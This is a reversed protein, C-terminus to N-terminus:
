AMDALVDFVEPFAALVRHHDIFRPFRVVMGVATRIVVLRDGRGRDAIIHAVDLHKEVIQVLHFGGNRFIRAFLDFVDLGLSFHFLHQSGVLDPTHQLLKVGGSEMAIPVQHDGFEQEVRAHPDPFAQRERGGLEIKVVFANQDNVRFVLLLSVHIKRM